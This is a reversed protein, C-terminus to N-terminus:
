DEDEEVERKLGLFSTKGGSINYILKLISRTVVIATFMSLV